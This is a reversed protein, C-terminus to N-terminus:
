RCERLLARKRARPVGAVWVAQVLHVLLNSVEAAFHDGLIRHEAGVVKDGDDLGGTEIRKACIRDTPSFGYYSHVPKQM